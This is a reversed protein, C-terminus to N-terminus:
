GVNVSKASTETRQIDEFAPDLLAEAASPRQAPDLTLFSRMIRVFTVVEEAGNNWTTSGNLKSEIPPLEAGGVTARKLM